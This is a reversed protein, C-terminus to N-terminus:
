GVPRDTPCFEFNPDTNTLEEQNYFPDSVIAAWRSTFYEVESLSALNSRKPACGYCILEANPALVSYAGVDRVKLCYDVDNFNVPLAETYGGVEKFLSARTLMVAGTVAIFNRRHVQVLFIVKMGTRIIGACLIRHAM